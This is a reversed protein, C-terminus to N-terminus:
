SSKEAKAEIVSPENVPIEAKDARLLASRLVGSVTAQDTINTVVALTGPAQAYVCVYSGGAMLREMAWALARTAEVDREDLVKRVEFEDSM